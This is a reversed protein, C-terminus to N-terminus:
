IVPDALEDRTPENGAQAPQSVPPNPYRDRPPTLVTATSRPPTWGTATRLDSVATCLRGVISLVIVQIMGGILLAAGAGIFPHTKSDCFTGGFGDSSCSSPITHVLLAFGAILAAAGALVALTYMFAAAARLQDARPPNRPPQTM